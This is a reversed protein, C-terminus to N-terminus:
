ALLLAKETWVGSDKMRKGCAASPPSWHTTRMMSAREKKRRKKEGCQCLHCFQCETGDRCGKLNVFACPKCMGLHHQGSGVNPVEKGDVIVTPGWVPSIPGPRVSTFDAADRLDSIQDLMTVVPMESPPPPPPRPAPLAVAAAAPMAPAAPPAVGGPWNRPLAAASNPLIAQVWQQRTPSRLMPSCSMPSPQVPPLALYPEQTYGQMPHTTPATPKTSGFRSAQGGGGHRNSRYAGAAANNSSNSRLSQEGLARLQERYSMPPPSMMEVAQCCGNDFGSAFSSGHSSYASGGNGGSTTSSTTSRQECWSAVQKGSEDWEGPPAESSSSAEAEDIDGANRPAGDRIACNLASRGHEMGLLVPLDLDIGSDQSGVPTGPSSSRTAQAQLANVLGDLQWHSRSNMHHPGVDYSFSDCMPQQAAYPLYM